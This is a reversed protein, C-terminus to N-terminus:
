RAVIRKARDIAHQVATAESYAPEEAPPAVTFLDQLGGTEGDDPEAHDILPLEKSRARHVGEQLVARWGGEPANRRALVALLAAASTVSVVMSVIVGWM